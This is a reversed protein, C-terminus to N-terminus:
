SSIVIALVMLLAMALLSFYVVPWIFAVRRKWGESCKCKLRELEVAYSLLVAFLTVNFALAGVSAIQYLQLPKSSKTMNPLALIALKLVVNVIYGWMLFERKWSDSCGCANTQLENTWYIVVGSLSLSAVAVAIKFALINSGSAM